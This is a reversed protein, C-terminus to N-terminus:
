LAKLFCHGILGAMHRTAGLSPRRRAETGVTKRRAQALVEFVPTEINELKKEERL